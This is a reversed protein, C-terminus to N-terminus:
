WPATPASPSWSASCAPSGGSSVCAACRTGSRGCRAAPRACVERAVTQRALRAPPTTTERDPRGHRDTHQRQHTATRRVAAACVHGPAGGGTPTREAFSRAGNGHRGNMDSHPAKGFARLRGFPCRSPAGAGRRPHKGTAGGEGRRRGSQLQAPATPLRTSGTPEASGLTAPGTSPRAGRPDEIPAETAVTTRSRSPTPLRTSPAPRPRAKPLPREVLPLSREPRGAGRRATRRRPASETAGGDLGDPAPV